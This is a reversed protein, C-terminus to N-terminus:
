DFLKKKSEVELISEFLRFCKRYGEIGKATAEREICLELQNSMFEFYNASHHELELYKTKLTSHCEPTRCVKLSERFHRDLFNTM